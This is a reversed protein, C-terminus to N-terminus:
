SQRKIEFFERYFRQNADTSHDADTCIHCSLATPFGFTWSIESRANPICTPNFKMADFQYATLNKWGSSKSSAIKNM